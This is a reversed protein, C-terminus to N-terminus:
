GNINNSDFLVPFLDMDRYDPNGNQDKACIKDYGIQILNGDPHYAKQYENRHDQYHVALAIRDISSVNPHSSHITHCNHFSVQGKKLTMYSRGHDPKNTTLYKDFKELDQNNFSYFDKLSKEEKWGHSYDIHMLPGMDITVDQLPIWATLMHNSTCTPWYAKDSHWGVVGKEASKAPKKSLLSDAFLRISSSDALTAATAVLLKYFGLNQLEKKQLTVFENNRIVTDEASDDAVGELTKLTYDREGAYYKEVSYLASELVDDPIIKPTVHWGIENYKKVDSDSPLLKQEDPTLSNFTYPLQGNM